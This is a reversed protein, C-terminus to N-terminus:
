LLCFTPSAKVHCLTYLCILLTSACVSRELSYSGTHWKLHQLTRSVTLDVHSRLRRLPMPSIPLFNYVDLTEVLPPKSVTFALTRILAIPLSVFGDYYIRYLFCVVAIDLTLCLSHAIDIPNNDTGTPPALHLSLWIIRSAESNRM